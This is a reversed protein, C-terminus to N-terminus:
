VHSSSSRKSILGMTESAGGAEIADALDLADDSFVIAWALTFGAGVLVVCAPLLPQAALQLLIPFMIRALVIRPIDAIVKALYNPPTLLDSSKEHWITLKKNSFAVSEVSISAFCVDLAIFVGIETPAPELLDASAGLASVRIDIITNRM